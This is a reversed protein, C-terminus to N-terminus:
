KNDICRECVGTIKLSNGLRCVGVARQISGRCAAPLSIDRLRECSECYFHDHPVARKDYVMAGRSDLAAFGIEGDEYLRQTIRHVTTDSLHPYSGRLDDCLQANTAHGFYQLSLKVADVYKSRRRTTVEM